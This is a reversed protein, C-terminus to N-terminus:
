MWTYKREIDNPSFQRKNTFYFGDTKVVWYCLNIDDFSDPDECFEHWGAYFVDFVRQKNDWWFHCFFRTTLWFNIRFQWHFNQLYYLTHNGLDDDGSACHIRLPPSKTSNIDNLVRVEFKPYVIIGGHIMLLFNSLLILHFLLLLIKTFILGMKFNLKVDLSM